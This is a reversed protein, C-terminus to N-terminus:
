HGEFEFVWEDNTMVYCRIRRESRSVWEAYQPIGEHDYFISILNASSDTADIPRGPQDTFIDQPMDGVDEHYVMTGKAVHRVLKYPPELYDPLAPIDDAAVRGAAVLALVGILWAWTRM